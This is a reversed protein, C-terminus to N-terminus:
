PVCEVGNRKCTEAPPPLVDSRKDSRWDRYAIWIACLAAICGLALRLDM